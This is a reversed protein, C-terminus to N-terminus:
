SGNVPRLGHVRELAVRVVGDPPEDEEGLLVVVHQGLAAVLVDDRLHLLPFVVLPLRLDLFRLPSGRMPGYWTKGNLVFIM